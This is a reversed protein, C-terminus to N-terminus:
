GKEQELVGQIAKEMISDIENVDLVSLELRGQFAAARRCVRQLLKTSSLDAEQHENIHALNRLLSGRIEESGFTSNRFVMRDILKEWYTQNFRVILRVEQEVRKDSGSAQTIIREHWWARALPCDVYVSRNGRIEPLGGLRRLIARVCADITQPAQKTTDYLARDIREAGTGVTGGNAALFIAKIRKKKIYSLTVNAWFTSRCAISPTLTELSKYIAQETGIPMQKFEDETLRCSIISPEEAGVKDIELFTKLFEQDDRASELFTKQKQSGKTRLLSKRLRTFASDDFEIFKQQTSIM